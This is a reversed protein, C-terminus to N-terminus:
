VATQPSAVSERVILEPRLVIRRPATTGGQIREVILNVAMEGMTEKPQQVATLPCKLFPAFDFDDFSLLSIDGPISLHEEEIAQLAGLTILDGTAFIATPPADLTLLLKTEVYGKERRFDGGVVLQPDFAVSHAALADLYGQLRATNTYTELLGQVFAIRRHGFGILHETARYAGQYNDVVVSDVDLADFSRDLLVLPVGRDLWDEFHESSQGVPMAILGDVRKQGLLQVQEVELEINENTNCVILSYGREYAVDQVRKIVNAFFPNSIDPTVLGITHTKSLRLGRALHNATYSLEDATRLVLAETESSIRHETAKQNLVRSVTSVSVGAQRAIDALTAAM